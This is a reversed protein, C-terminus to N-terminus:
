RFIKKYVKILKQKENDWGFDDRDIITIIDKKKEKVKSFTMNKVLAYVAAENISCTWGCSYEDIFASMDPFDSVISPIGSTLYEFIKNPLSYYHNLCTNETLAVGVDAGSTYEHIEGMEVAELFHINNNRKEYAKIEEELCGFGMFVIHDTIEENAFVSLFIEIGRGPHFGGQFIFIIRNEPIDFIERLKGGGRQLESSQTKVPINRVVSINDLGYNERYWKGISNSVVFTYDAHKIYKKEMWKMIKKLFRSSGGRETELEHADYILQCGSNKKLRVGVPLDFLSHCNILGIDKKHFERYIKRLWQLYRLIKKVKWNLRKPYTKLPVRWVKRYEDLQQHEELECDGKGVMIIETAIGMDILTGTIKMIRSAKAMNSPYIHLNLM